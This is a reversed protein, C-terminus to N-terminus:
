SSKRIFFATNPPLWGTKYIGPRYPSSKWYRKIATTDNRDVYVLDGYVIDAEPHMDFQNIVDRIAHPHALMDDAGLFSIIEGTSIRIGKNMADYLGKDKESILIVRDSPYQKIISITHDVSLADLIIHDINGYSQCLVSEICSGITSEGNLVPTIVSLKLDDVANM